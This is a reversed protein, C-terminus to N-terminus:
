SDNPVSAAEQAAAMPESDRGVTSLKAHFELVEQLEIQFKMEKACFGGFGPNRIRKPPAKADDVKLLQPSVLVNPALKLTDSPANPINM